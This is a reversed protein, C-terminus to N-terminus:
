VIETQKEGGSVRGAASIVRCSARQARSTAPGVTATRLRLPKSESRARHFDQHFKPTARQTPM